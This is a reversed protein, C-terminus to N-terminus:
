VFAFVEDEDIKVIPEVWSFLQLGVHRCKHKDNDKKRNERM